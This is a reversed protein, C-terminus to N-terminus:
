GNLKKPMQSYVRGNLLRGALKKRTGGWQKFFFPVKADLCQRHIDEVWEKKMPRAGPGSEGGVIVWDIKSLSLRGLPTLLPECSLFKVVADTKALQKIRGIHDKSEITVGMWINPTWKLISHYKELVDGRKTLVQFCHQPNENMVNFVKKLYSLDIDKHFLDSMSNVFVMRPKKWSYPEDLSEPHLSLSFGNKYKQINMAKLRSAM